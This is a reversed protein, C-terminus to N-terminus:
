VRNRRPASRAPSSLTFRANTTLSIGIGREDRVVCARASGEADDVEIGAAANGWLECDALLLRGKETAGAGVRASAHSKTKRVDLVGGAFCNLNEATNGWVDCGEVRVESQEHVTIGGGKTQDHVKSGRVTGKSQGRFEAGVYTNGDVDADEITLVARQEVLFGSGLNKRSAGGRWVATTGEGVVSVGTKFSGSVECAVAVLSAGDTM